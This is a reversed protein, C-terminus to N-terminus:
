SVTSSIILLAGTGAGTITTTATMTTDVVDSSDVRHIGKITWKLVPEITGWKSTVQFTWKATIADGTKLLPYPYLSGAGIYPNSTTVRLNMYDDTGDNRMTVIADVWEGEKASSPITYGLINGFGVM